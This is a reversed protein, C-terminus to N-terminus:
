LTSTVRNPATRSDVVCTGKIDLKAAIRVANHFWYDFGWDTVHDLIVACLIISGQLLILPNSEAAFDHLLKAKTFFLTQAASRSAFGCGSLVDMSAYVSAPALMAQLLFLSCNGSQYDHIFDAADFVSAVPYIHSFYLKVLLDSYRRKTLQQVAFDLTPYLQSYRM